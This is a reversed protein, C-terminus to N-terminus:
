AWSNFEKNRYRKQENTKETDFKTLHSRREETLEDSSIIKGKKNREINTGCKKIEIIEEMCDDMGNSIYEVGDELDQHYGKIANKESSGDIYYYRINKEKVTIEYSNMERRIFIDMSVDPGKEPDMTPTM